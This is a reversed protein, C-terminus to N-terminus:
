RKLGQDLERRAATRVADAVRDLSPSRLRWQQWYLVVDVAGDPDLSVLEGPPEQLTPVMGWGFGLRVAVVYDASATSRSSRPV